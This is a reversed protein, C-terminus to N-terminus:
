EVTIDAFIYDASRETGHHVLRLICTVTCNFDALRCRRTYNVHRCRRTYNVYILIECFFGGYLLVYIM